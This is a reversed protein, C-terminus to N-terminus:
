SASIPESGGNSCMVSVGHIWGRPLWGLWGCTCRWLRCTGPAMFRADRWFTVPTANIEFPMLAHGDRTHHSVRERERKNLSWPM